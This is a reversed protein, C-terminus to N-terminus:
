YPLKVTFITGKNIVSKVAVFGKHQETFYKAVMLGIGTGSINGTNSARYFSTFLKAKDDNPIGIGFDVISITFYTTSFAIRVNPANKGVSYKFANQLLNQLVHQIMKTDVLADKATRKQSLTAKRGDKWPNFGENICSTIFQITNIKQHQINVKGAEIKSIMLLDQMFATMKDVEDIIQKTHVMLEEKSKGATLLLDLIEASSSIVTLPTRLEHSVMNVFATKLENLEKERKILALLQQEQMQQNTIDNLTAFIGKKGGDEVNFAPQLNYEFQKEKGDKNLITVIGKNNEAKGSLITFVKRYLEYRTISLMEFLPKGIYGDLLQGTLKHWAENIFQLNLDGDTQFVVDSFQNFTNYFHKTAAELKDELQKQHSINFSQEIISEIDNSIDLVPYLSRQFYGNETNPSISVDEWSIAKKTDIVKSLYAQKIQAIDIPLNAYSYFQEISRGVVWKRIEPKTAYEKNVFLYKGTKNYIAFEGKINNIVNELVNHKDTSQKLLATNNTEKKFLWVHSEFVNEKFYPTYSIVLIEGSSLTFSKNLSQQKNNPFQVFLEQFEQKEIINEKLGEINAVSNSGLINKPLINFNFFKCFLTNAFTVKRNVDEILVGISATTFLFDLGEYSTTFKIDLDHNM